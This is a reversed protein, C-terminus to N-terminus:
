PLPISSPQTTSCLAPKGRGALKLRWDVLALYFCKEHPGALLSPSPEFTIIWRPLTALSAIMPPRDLSPFQGLSSVQINAKQTISPLSIGTSITHGLHPLSVRPNGVSNAGELGQGADPAASTHGAQRSRGLDQAHLFAVTESGQNSSPSTTHGAIQCCLPHASRPLCPM